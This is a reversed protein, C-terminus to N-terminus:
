DAAASSTTSKTSKEVSKESKAATKETSTADVAKTETKDASDAKEAKDENKGNSLSTKSADKSDNIYFGSGKFVVGPRQVIRVVQQGTEPDVSLPDDLFKQKVTFTTGDERRYMYEPM